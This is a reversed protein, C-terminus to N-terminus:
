EGSSRDRFNMSVSNNNGQVLGEIKEAKVSYTSAESPQHARFAKDQSSTNESEQNQNPKFLIRGLFAFVIGIWILIQIFDALGQIINSNAGVFQLILSLWYHATGALLAMVLVTVIFLKTSKTANM